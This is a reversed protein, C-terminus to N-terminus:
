FYSHPHVVHEEKPNQNSLAQDYYMLGRQISYYGFRRRIDDVAEDMKMQKQRYEYLHKMQSLLMAVMHEAVMHGWGGSASALMAGAPLVGPREYRETGATQTQLLRLERCERLLATRPNGLIVTAQAYLAEGAPEGTPLIGNPAYLVRNAGAVAALTRQQAETMPLLNLITEM